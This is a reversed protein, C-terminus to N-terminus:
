IRELESFRYLTRACGESEIWQTEPPEVYGYIGCLTEFLAEELDSNVHKEYLEVEWRHRVVWNENDAGKGSPEDTYVAWPLEPAGGKPWCMHTCPVHETVASVLREKAQSYM